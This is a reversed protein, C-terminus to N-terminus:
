FHRNVRIFFRDRKRILYQSVRGCNLCKHERLVILNGHLFAWFDGQVLVLEFSEILERCESLAGNHVTNYMLVKAVSTIDLKAQTAYFLHASYEARLGLLM